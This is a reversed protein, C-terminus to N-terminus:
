KKCGLIIQVMEQHILGNSAIIERDYVTASTGDYKSIKGGAEELLLVGAAVDWPSLGKEWFGDFHGEAVQCIDWVASGCRRIGQTLEMFPKLISLSHELEKGRQYSFGTAILCEGLKQTRSVSLKRGNKYAGKGKIVTYLEEHIPDFIVGVVIKGAQEIGISTCFFPIQHTYNTTGDLPDIIWKFAHSEKHLGSEEALIAHGPFHKKIISIIKEESKKDAETVLGAQKKESIDKIHGLFSALIKGAEKAAHIAVKEIKELNEKMFVRFGYCFLPNLVIAKRSVRM